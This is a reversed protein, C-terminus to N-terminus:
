CAAPLSARSDDASIRVVTCVVNKKNKENSENKFGRFSKGGMRNYQRFVSRDIVKQAIQQNITKM